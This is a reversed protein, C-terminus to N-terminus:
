ELSILASAWVFLQACINIAAKNTIALFQVSSQMVSECHSHLLREDRPAETKEDTFFSTVFCRIRQNSTSKFSYYAYPALCLVRITFLGSALPIRASFSALFEM